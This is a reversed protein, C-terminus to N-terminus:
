KVSKALEILQEDCDSNNVACRLNYLYEGDNWILYTESKDEAYILQGEVAGITVTKINTQKNDVLFENNDLITQTYMIDLDTSSFSVIYMSPSDMLVEREYADRIDPEKKTVITEPVENESDSVFYIAVYDEYWTVIANWVATRVAEVSMAAAFSLTCLILFGAAIRKLTRNLSGIETHWHARRNMAFIKRRLSNPMPVTEFDPNLFEQANKEAIADTTMTLLADLKRDSISYNM